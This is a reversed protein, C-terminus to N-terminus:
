ENNFPTMLFNLMAEGRCAEASKLSLWLPLKRGDWKKHFQELKSAAETYQDTDIMDFIAGLESNMEEGQEVWYLSRVEIYAPLLRKLFNILNILFNILNVM